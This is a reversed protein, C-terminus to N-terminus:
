LLHTMIASRIAAALEERYSTSLLKEMESPNSLNGVSITISPLPTDALIPSPSKQPKGVSADYTQLENAIRKAMNKSDRSYPNKANWYVVIGSPLTDEKAEIIISILAAPKLDLGLALQQDFTTRPQEFQLFFFRVPSQEAKPVISYALREALDQQLAANTQVQFTVDGRGVDMLVVPPNSQPVDKFSTCSITMAFLTFVPLLRLVNM